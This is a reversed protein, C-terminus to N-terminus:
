APPDAPMHPLAAPPGPLASPAPASIAEGAAAGDEPAKGSGQGTGPLPAIRRHLHVMLATGYVPIILNLIPIFLIPAILFGAIFVSVAHAKRLARAEEPTRYRMAALEFYERSLLYANAVLFVVINVGPVLLLALAALNVLLVLGFFRITYVLSRLFPLPRGGPDDPYSAAEVRKAVDDVFLGAVMSSVAPVLYFAAFLLGLAAIVAITADVWPHFPTDVFYALASEFLVAVALLIVLALAISKLLVGRLLPSFTQRLADYAAALM